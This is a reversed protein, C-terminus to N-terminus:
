NRIGLEREALGAHLVMELARFDALATELMARGRAQDDAVASASLTRGYWYQVTPQLIRVPLERAQRLADEFHERAKDVLGAADAALAAALQPNSPGAVLVSIAQGTRVYELALPYLEGRQDRDGLLALGTILADLAYFEGLVNRRGLGPLKRTVQPILARATDSFGALANASLLNAEPMGEYWNDAPLQLSVTTLQKLAESVEGLYLSAVGIGSRTVYPFYPLDVLVQEAAARFARINGTRSFEVFAGCWRDLWVGGRHGAPVAAAVLELRLKDCEELPGCYYTVVLLNSFLDARDWLAGSPTLALARRTAAAAEEYECWMRQCAAQGFLVHGLTLPDDLGKVIELAEALCGAAEDIHAPSLRASAFMSLLQARERAAGKSLARLGTTLSPVAESFRGRWMYSTAGGRTAREIGADDQIAEFIAAAQGYAAASEDHRGLAILAGARHELAEARMADREALELGLLNDATELAEEFAGAALARRGAVVLATATRQVDAAAGAQYLHHALVSAHSDLSTSRLREIADAIKLHLRQRRPLSLGGILTTRILEHVFGYRPTRLSTDAAVLQSREAEEVADLVDDEPVDVIPALLDLPFTRGIVAAATLVKRAQEGLRDLRRGIVLRVGEPVEIADVRLDAKWAGSEDFLKGEEALHQYVEEVFFPNGETERFVTKALGSPPPSGSIAALMQHVGSESLRRLAIRSALRQRLLAELTRAFPRKVDLEVDRYTGVVLLRMSPIHPAIHQLLQLTPEDAWHLDDFLFVGPSKQTGRQVYELFASFILRRQQDAPVDPLPPIDSYTRKLSPVMAAIEAALDGMAARAAQPVLRVTQETIEVFPVFPPAGEMEYCHGTFCVCGRQRAKAMLERALRTKGVGPEGGVLVFGGQGTLMRDLARELEGAESDRGVFPTREAPQAIATLGSRSSSSWARERLAEFDALVEGMTQHRGACAKALM